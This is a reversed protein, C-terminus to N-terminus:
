NGRSENPDINSVWEIPNVYINSVTGRLTDFGQNLPVPKARKGVSKMWNNWAGESKKKRQQELQDRSQQEQLQREQERKLQRTKVREWEELRKRRAEPTEKPPQKKGGASIASSSMSGTCSYSSSSKLSITSTKKQQLMKQKCWEHYREKALRQRMATEAERREKEQKEAQQKQKKQLEKRKVWELYVHQKQRDQEDDLTRFFTSSGSSSTASFNFSLPPVVNDHGPTPKLADGYMDTWSFTSASSCDERRLTSAKLNYTRSTLQSMSDAKSDLKVPNKISNSPEMIDSALSSDLSGLSFADEAKSNSRCYTSSDVSSFSQADDQQLNSKCARPEHFSDMANFDDPIRPSCVTDGDISDLDDTKSVTSCKFTEEDSTMDLGDENEGEGCKDNRDSFGVVSDMNNGGRELAFTSEIDVDERKNAVYRVTPSIYSRSSYGELTGSDTDDDGLDPMSMSNAGMGSILQRDVLQGEINRRGVFAM